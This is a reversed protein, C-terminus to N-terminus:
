FIPDSLLVLDLCYSNFAKGWVHSSSSFALFFVILQSKTMTVKKTGKAALQKLNMTPEYHLGYQLNMHLLLLPLTM